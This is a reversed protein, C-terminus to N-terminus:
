GRAYAARSHPRGSAEADSRTGPVHLHSAAPAVPGAQGRALEPPCPPEADHGSGPEDLGDPLPAGFGRATGRAPSVAPPRDSRELFPEVRKMVAHAERVAEVAHVGVFRHERELLHVAQRAGATDAPVRAGARSPSSGAPASGPPVVDLHRLRVLDDELHAVALDDADDVDRRARRAVRREASAPRGALRRPRKGM